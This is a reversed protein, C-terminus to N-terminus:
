KDQFNPSPPYRRTEPQPDPCMLAMLALDPPVCRQPLPPAAHKLTSNQVAARGSRAHKPLFGLAPRLREAFDAVLNASQRAALGPLAADLMALAIRAVGQSAQAAIQASAEQSATLYKAIQALSEAARNVAEQTMSARGAAFGDERAAAAVARMTEEMPDPEPSAPPARAAEARAADLAEILSTPAFDPLAPGRPVPVFIQSMDTCWRTRV